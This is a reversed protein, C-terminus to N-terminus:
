ARQNSTAFVWAPLCGQFRQRRRFALLGAYPLAWVGRYTLTRWRRQSLTSYQDGRCTWFTEYCGDVVSRNITWRRRLWRHISIYDYDHLQSRYLKLLELTRPLVDAIYLLYNPITYGWIQYFVCHLQAAATKGVAQLSRALLGAASIHDPHEELPSPAYIVDPSYREILARIAGGDQATLSEQLVTDEMFEFHNPKLLAM